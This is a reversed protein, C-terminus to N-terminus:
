QEYLDYKICIQHIEPISKACHFDGDCVMAQRIYKQGKVIKFNNNRANIYDRYDQICDFYNPQIDGTLFLCANCEHEKRAIPTSESIINCFM